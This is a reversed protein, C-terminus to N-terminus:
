EVVFTIPQRHYANVAHGNQQAPKWQMCNKIIRVAEEEMGYGFHTEPEVQSISGDKMVVFRVVVRYIGEPAGNDVPTSPNLKTEVYRKWAAFGGPFIAEMEVNTWIEDGTEKPKPTEIVTSAVPAEPEGIVAPRGDGDSDVTGIVADPQLDNIQTAPDVEQPAVVVPNTFAQTKPAQRPVEVPQVPPPLEKVPPTAFGGDQVVFVTKETVRNNAIAFGAILIGTITGTILLSKRLRGQYTKRLDYAGYSKNKQEFIIDLVDAQLIQQSNM